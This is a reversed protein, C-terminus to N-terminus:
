RDLLHRRSAEADCGFVQAAASLQLDLHGLPGLRSLAPLQRPRLHILVDGPKAVALWAHRQNRRRRMVVDIGDLIQRLQDVVQVLHM